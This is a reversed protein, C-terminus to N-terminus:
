AKYYTFSERYSKCKWCTRVCHCRNRGGGGFYYLISQAQAECWLLLFLNIHNSQRCILIAFNYYNSNM